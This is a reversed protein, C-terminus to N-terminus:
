NQETIEWDRFNQLVLVAANKKKKKSIVSHKVQM